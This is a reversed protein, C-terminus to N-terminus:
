TRLSQCAAFMASVAWRWDRQARILGQGGVKECAGATSGESVDEESGSLSFNTVFSSRAQGRVSAIGETNFVISSSNALLFAASCNFGGFVLLPQVDRNVVALFVRAFVLLVEGTSVVLAECTLVSQVVRGFVLLIEGTSAGLAERHLVAQVVRFLVLLVEGTSVALFLWAFVPLVVRAFVLCFEGTLVIALVCASALLVIRALALGAEGSMALSVLGFGARVLRVFVLCVEGTSVALVEQVCSGRIVRGFVVLFERAFELRLEGTSLLLLERVFVPLFERNFVLLIFEVALRTLFEMAKSTNSGSSKDPLAAPARTEVTVTTLIDPISRDLASFKPNVDDDDLVGELGSEITPPGTLPM